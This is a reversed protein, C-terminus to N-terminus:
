RQAKKCVNVVVFLKQETREPSHPSGITKVRVLCLQCSLLCIATVYNALNSVM